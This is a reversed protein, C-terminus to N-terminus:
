KSCSAVGALTKALLTEPQGPYEMSTAHVCAECMVGPLLPRKSSILAYM